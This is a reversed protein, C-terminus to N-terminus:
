ERLLLLLWPMGKSNSLHISVDPVYEKIFDIYSSTRTYVAYWGNYMDCPAGFSVLGVHVWTGDVSSVLAGGSDGGCTDKGEYYGACIQSSLLYPSGYINDCYNNGVIPLDVQRLKEPYYLSSASDAMGWGLATTMEGIMSPPIGERSEGAFLSLTSQSSSQAIELLAIDNQIHTANYQPHIHISKVQSRTVALSSLDYAGVAVEIEGPSKGNVCHAATLIWSSGVLVGGCFQAQYSNPEDSSLLATMWPWDGSKSETGGLIKVSDPRIEEYTADIQEWSVNADSLSQQGAQAINITTICSALLMLSLTIPLRRKRMMM